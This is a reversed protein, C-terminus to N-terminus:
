AFIRGTRTRSRSFLYSSAVTTAAASRQATSRPALTTLMESPPPARLSASASARVYADTWSTTTTAHVPLTVVPALEVSTHYGARSAPTTATAPSFLASSPVPPVAPPPLAAPPAPPAASASHAPESVPAGVTRVAGATLRMPARGPPYQFTCPVLKAAGRTAAVAASIRERQGVRSAAFTILRSIRVARSRPGAPRSS